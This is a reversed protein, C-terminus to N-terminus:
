VHDQMDDFSIQCQKVDTRLLVGVKDIANLRV